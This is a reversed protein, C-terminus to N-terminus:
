FFKTFKTNQELFTQIRNELANDVNRIKRLEGRSAIDVISETLNQINQGAWHLDKWLRDAYQNDFAENLFEESIL